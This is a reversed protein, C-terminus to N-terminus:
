VESEPYHFGKLKWILPNQESICKLSSWPPPLYSSFLHTCDANYLSQTLGTPSASPYIRFDRCLSGTWTSQPSSPAATRPLFWDGWVSLGVVQMILAQDLQASFSKQEGTSQFDWEWGEITTGFRQFWLLATQESQLSSIKFFTRLAWMLHPMELDFLRDCSSVMGTHHQSRGGM